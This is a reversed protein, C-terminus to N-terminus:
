LRRYRDYQEDKSKIHLRERLEKIERVLKIFDTDLVAISRDRRVTKLDYEEAMYQRADEVKKNYDAMMKDFLESM